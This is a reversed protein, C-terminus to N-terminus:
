YNFVLAGGQAYEYMSPAGKVEANEVWESSQAGRVNVCVPCVFFRGGTEIYEDHLAAVSPAGPVVITDAFGATAVYIADQTLFMVAEKGARLAEVGLLYAILVSEPAEAGHTLCVLVKSDPATTTTM